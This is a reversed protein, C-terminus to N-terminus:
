TNIGEHNPVIKFTVPNLNSSFPNTFSEWGQRSRITLGRHLFVREYIQEFRKKGQRGHFPKKSFSGGNEALVEKLVGHLSLLICLM